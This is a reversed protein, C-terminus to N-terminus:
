DTEDTIVGLTSYEKIVQEREGCTMKGEPCPGTLCRPGAHVFLIPAVERVLKLMEKALKRIEWQARNCCRHHFFNYLSRANMTMVLKTECANPLVFRADEIARKEALSKAKQETYGQDLFYDYHKKFLIDSLQSYREQDEKMAKIFIERTESCDEIEPPIIYNFYGEKVYRQSKVSYSAIRHRTLQALLSRSVGEIGFTFTVHEIPSEHGLGFLMQIFKEQTEMDISDLLENIGLPSYCLRAAATIIKEADATHALLEVKLRVGSM